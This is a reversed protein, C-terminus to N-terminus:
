VQLGLDHGAVVGRDRALEGEGRDPIGAGQQGAPQVGEFAALLSVQRPGQKGADGDPM